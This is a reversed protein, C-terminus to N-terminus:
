RRSPRVSALASLGRRVGRAVAVARILPHVAADSIFESTGRVNEATRHAENLTPRINEDVDVLTSIGRRIARMQRVLILLFISLLAFFLIGVAGYIIIVWDRVSELEPLFDLSM